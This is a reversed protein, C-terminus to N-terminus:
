GIKNERYFECLMKIIKEFFVKPIALIATGDM